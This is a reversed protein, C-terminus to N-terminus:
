MHGKGFMAQFGLWVATCFGGVIMTLAVTASKSAIAETVIRSRRLHAMDERFAQADEIDVGLRMLVNEVAKESARTAVDEVESRTM